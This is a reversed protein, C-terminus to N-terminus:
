QGRSWGRRRAGVPVLWTSPLTKSPQGSPTTSLWRMPSCLFRHGGRASWRGHELDRIARVSMGSRAALEDQSLGRDLRFGSLLRGFQRWRSGERNNRQACNGVEEVIPRRTPQGIREHGRIESRPQLGIGLATTFACIAFLRLDLLSSSVDDQWRVLVATVNNTHEHGAPEGTGGAAGPAM